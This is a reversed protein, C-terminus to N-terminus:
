EYSDGSKPYAIRSVGRTPQSPHLLTAPIPAYTKGNPLIMELTLFDNDKVNSTEQLIEIYHWGADLNITGRQEVFKIKQGFTVRQPVSVVKKPAIASDLSGIWLESVGWSSLFFDIEGPYEILLQGRYRVGKLEGENRNKLEPLLHMDSPQNPFTTLKQVYHVSNISKSIWTEKLIGNPLEKLYDGLVYITAEDIIVKQEGFGEWFLQLKQIGSNTPVWTFSSNVDVIQEALGDSFIFVGDTNAKFESFSVSLTDGENLILNKLTENFKGYPFHYKVKTSLLNPPLLFIGDEIQQTNPNYNTAVSFHDGGGHEKMLVELEIFQGQTLSILQSSQSVYKTFSHFGTWGPISAILNRGSQNSRIWLETEDDGSIYFRFEGTVPATFKALARIGYFNLKNHTQAYDTLVFRETPFNPFGNYSKLSSLKSGQIDEYTEVLYGSQNIDSLSAIVSVQKQDLDIVQGNLTARLKIVFNGVQDPNWSFSSADVALPYETEGIWLHLDNFGTTIPTWQIEWAEGKEFIQPWSLGKFNGEAVIQSCNLALFLFLSKFIINM